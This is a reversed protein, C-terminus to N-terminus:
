LLEEAFIEQCLEVCEVCIRADGAAALGAVRHFPKGCFSCRQGGAHSTLKVMAAAAATADGDAALVSAATAVCGDCICVGPGAVLKRVQQRTRGCFSCALEGLGDQERPPESPQDAPRDADRQGSGSARWGYRSPPRTVQEGAAIRRIIDAADWVETFSTTIPAPGLRLRDPARLDGVVGAQTLAEGIQTARPHYLCVHSGRRAADRPSALSFGLPALWADALEVLYGTLRMGKDRLAGIGAEALLSVGESVAATGVIDPTGTMFRGIGPVPDYVPGMAFQDRQGFWGQVPQHLQQQLDSRV